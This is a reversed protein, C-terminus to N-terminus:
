CYKKIDKDMEIQVNVEENTFPHIFSIFYAQLLLNKDEDKSYLEDGLLPHNIYAFHVRIQHTRGTLLEVDCVSIKGNKIVKYKTLSEKGNKTIIKKKNNHRDNGIKEDILGEQHSFKNHCVAYYKKKIKRERILKDMSSSALPDKAFIVLGSTNYDLRNCVRVKRRIHHKKYYSAVYNSLTLEDSVGDSHVLLNKKKNVILYYDDEYVINLNEGLPLIDINENLEIELLDNEKVITQDDVNQENLFIKKNLNYLYIKDKALSFSKLIDKISLSAHKYDIRYKFSNM